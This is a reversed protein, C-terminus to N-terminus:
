TKLDFMIKQAVHKAFNAPVANGVMKYGDAINKYKFIYHDPFTQIRACERVSLRRYKSEQGSVFIRKNQSIFEMKPAPPHIPAHREGAQITFSPEDWSRVRNRSLYISSFGGNMYEHNPASLNVEDYTEANSERAPKERWLDWIADKLVLNSDQPKPFEFKKKLDRHYGIILLLSESEIKPFM